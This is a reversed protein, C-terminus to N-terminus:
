FAVPLAALSRFRFLCEPKWQPTRTTLRMRPLAQLLCTFAIRAETRVLAAGLCYHIGAGFALHRNPTRTIDFRDPDPFQGPDRNAAGLFTEVRQGPSITIGQLTIAERACRFTGRQVPSEYRLMEEVASPMLEPRSKLLEYQEPHSLLTLMGNALLDVTTEFGAILLLMCTGVLEEDTLRDDADRATVMASILDEGPLDRRARVLGDFYAQLETLGKRAVCREGDTIRKTHAQVIQNSWAAFQEWDEVPIGLLESIVMVPLPLAFAPIFDMGGDARVGAILANAIQTIRSELNAVRAPTFAGSSLRRLRTHDPPDTGQMTRALVGLQGDPVLFQPYKSVRAEKLIAAVDDYAVVLWSGGTGGPFQRWYPTGIERLVQYTPYPNAFFASSSLDM